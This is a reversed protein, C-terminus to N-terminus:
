LRRRSAPASPPAPTEPALRGGSPPPVPAFPPGDGGLPPPLVSGPPATMIPPPGDLIPGGGIPGHCDDVAPGLPVGSVPMGHVPAGVAAGPLLVGGHGNGRRLGLRSMLGGNLPAECCPNRATHCGSLLGLGAVALWAAVRTRNM